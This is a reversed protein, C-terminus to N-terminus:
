IYKTLRLTNSNYCILLFMQYNKQCKRVLSEDDRQLEKPVSTFKGTGLLENVQIRQYQLHLPRVPLMKTKPTKQLTEIKTFINTYGSRYM